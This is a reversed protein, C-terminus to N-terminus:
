GHSSDSFGLKLHLAKQQQQSLYAKFDRELAQTLGKNYRKSLSKVSHTAGYINLMAVFRLIDTIYCLVSSKIEVM